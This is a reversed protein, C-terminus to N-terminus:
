RIGITIRHADELGLDTPVFAYDIRWNRRTLGIGYSFSRTDHGTQYGARLAIAPVPAYEAGILVGTDGFRPVRVDSTLLIHHRGDPAVTTWAAGVRFERPLASREVEFADMRGLHLASAGLAIPGDAPRWALGLDLAFGSARAAELDEHLFRATFGGFLDGSLRQAYSFAANFEFLNFTGIPNTTPGTRAEIGGATHIGLSLGVGRSGNGYGWGSRIQRIGAITSHHSIVFDKRSMLAVSSPNAYVATQDDTVATMAGSLAASRAGVPETLLVLGSERLDAGDVSAPALLAILICALQLIRTMRVDYLRLLIM